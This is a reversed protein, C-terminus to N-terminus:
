NKLSWMHVLFITPTWFQGNEAQTPRVLSQSTLFELVLDIELPEFLGAVLSCLCCGEKTHFNKISSFWKFNTTKVDEVYKTM